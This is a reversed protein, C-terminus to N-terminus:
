SVRVCVCVCVRHYRCVLHERFMEFRLTFRESFCSCACFVCVSLLCKRQSLSVCFDNQSSVTQQVRVLLVCRSTTSTSGGDLDRGASQFAHLLLWYNRLETKVSQRVEGDQRVFTRVGRVFASQAQARRRRWRTERSQRQPVGQRVPRAARRRRRQGRGLEALVHQRCCSLGLDSTRAEPLLWCWVSGSLCVCACVCVRAHALTVSFHFLQSVRSCLVGEFRKGFSSPKPRGSVVALQKVKAWQTHRSGCWSNEGCLKFIVTGSGSM